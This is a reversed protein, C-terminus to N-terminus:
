PRRYAGLYRQTRRQPTRWGTLTSHGCQIVKTVSMYDSKPNRTDSVTTDTVNTVDGLSKSETSRGNHHATKKSAGSLRGSFIEVVLALSNLNVSTHAGNLGHLVSLSTRSGALPRDETQVVSGSGSVEGLSVGDLNGLTDRTIYRVLSADVLEHGVKESTQLVRELIGTDLPLNTLQQHVDDDDYSVLIGTDGFKVRASPRTRQPEFKSGSGSLEFAADM